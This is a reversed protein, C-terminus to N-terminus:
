HAVLEGVVSHPKTMEPLNTRVWDQAVTISAEADAKTEFVSISTVANQDDQPTLLEYSVFGQTKSLIPRLESSAKRTAKERMTPDLNKYERILAYM